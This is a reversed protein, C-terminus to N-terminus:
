KLMGYGYGFSCSSLDYSVALTTDPRKKFKVKTVILPGFLSYFNFEKIYNRQIKTYSALDLIQLEYVSHIFM